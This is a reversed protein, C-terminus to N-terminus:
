GDPVGTKLYEEMAAIMKLLRAAIKWNEFLLYNGKYFPTSGVAAHDREGYNKVTLKLETDADLM